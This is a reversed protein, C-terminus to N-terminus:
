NITDRHTGAQHKRNLGFAALDTCDFTESTGPLEIRQLLRKDLVMRKLASKTRWSEQHQCRAQKLLVAGDAVFFQEIRKGGVKAAARTVLINQVSDFGDAIGKSRIL